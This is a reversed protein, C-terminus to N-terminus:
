REVVLGARVSKQYRADRCFVELAASMDSRRQVRDIADATDRELADFADGEADIMMRETAFVRDNSEAFNM